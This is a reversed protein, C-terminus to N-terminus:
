YSEFDLYETKAFKDEPRGFSINTISNHWKRLNWKMKGKFVLISSLAIKNSQKQLKRFDDKHSYHCM